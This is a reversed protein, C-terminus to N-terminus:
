AKQSSETSHQGNYGPPSSPSSSSACIAATTAVQGAQRSLQHTHQYVRRSVKPSALQLCSGAPPQRKAATQRKRSRISSCTSLMTLHIPQSSVDGLTDFSTCLFRRSLCSSELVSHAAPSTAWMSASFCAPLASNSGFIRCLRTCLLQLHANQMFTQPLSERDGALLNDM